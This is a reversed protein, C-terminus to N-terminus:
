DCTGLTWTVTSGPVFPQQSIGTEPHEGDVKFCWWPPASSGLPSGAGDIRSVGFGFDGSHSYEVEGHGDQEWRVMLDHVNAHGPHEDGEEAYMPASDHADVDLWVEHETDEHGPQGGYRVQLTAHALRVVDEHLEWTGNGDDMRLRLTGQGYPLAGELSWPGQVSATALTTVTDAEVLDLRLDAPRDADGTVAIAAERQPQPPLDWGTPPTAPAEPGTADDPGDDGDADTAGDTDTTEAEADGPGPAACGAMLLLLSLLLPYLNM